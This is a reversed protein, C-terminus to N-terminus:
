EGGMYRRPMRKSVRCLVEYAITGSWTAIDELTIEDEGQKGLLVVGDGVSVEDCDTVDLVIMDMTVRGVVPVRKGRVLAWANGSASWPYGDAYGIPVVALRGRRTTTFTGCYSVSTGEPVRKLLVIKSEINMVPKLELDGLADDEVGGYLALGPRAWARGAGEIMVPDGKLVAVSNAVHWIPVDGLADEIENRCSLFLEMQKKSVNEEGADALHTMVGEVNLNDFKALEDLVSTLYEPRVGLRSMGTDVKLHVDIIRDARVAALNLSSLIDASHVVPTLNAEVMMESAPTGVGMLGGMVLIKSSIGGDRLEIGEEVTAVGLASVGKKELIRSVEVAGHGYADAKVMAMIGVDAPLRGKLLEFNHALASLDIRAWTPRFLPTYDLETGMTM